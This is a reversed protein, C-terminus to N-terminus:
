EPRQKTRQYGDLMIQRKEAATSEKWCESCIAPYGHDKPFYAECFACCAGNIYDDAIEGM